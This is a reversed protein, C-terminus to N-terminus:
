RSRHQVRRRLVVSAAAAMLVTAVLIALKAQALLAPDPFALGAILLSVTFGIGSLLAVGLVDRWTIGDALEAATFRAVVWAVGLVGIPKGVVLGLLIGLVVPNGLDLGTDPMQVGAASLAFLPVAIGASLPHLSRSLRHAPSDHGDRSGTATLFGIAAGAITAHVGSAHLAAWAGVALPVGLWWPCRGRQQLLAYIGILAVAGLLPLLHIAASYFVAIVVIAGLDDVIASTLLFARLALPLGRGMVALVALAFAIDTAMPVGWGAAVGDALVLNPLLYLLAPLAMGGIAAAVPVAAKAPHALSGATLEHRLELGVVVFFVALLGDAAWGAVTLDLHLSAPGLRLDLLQRYSDGWASNAWVLAIGASLALLVGGVTEDRLQEALWARSAQSPQPFARVRSM